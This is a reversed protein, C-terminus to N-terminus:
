DLKGFSQLLTKAAERDEASMMSPSLGALFEEADGVMDLIQDSTLIGESVLKAILAQMMCTSAWFAGNGSM